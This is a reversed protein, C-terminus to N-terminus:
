ANYKPTKTLRENNELYTLLIGANDPFQYLFDDIAGFSLLYGSINENEGVKDFGEEM